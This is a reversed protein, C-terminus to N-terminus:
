VNRRYVKQLCCYTIFSKVKKIIRNQWRNVMKSFAFPWCRWGVLGFAINYWRLLSYNAFSVVYSFMILAFVASVAVDKIFVAVKGKYLFLSVLQYFFGVVLGVAMSYVGDWFVLLYRQPEFM